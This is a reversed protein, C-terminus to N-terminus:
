EKEELEPIHVMKRGEFYELEEYREVKRLRKILDVLRRMNRKLLQTDEETLSSLAGKGIAAECIGIVNNFEHNLSVVTARFAQLQREQERRSVIRGLQEGLLYKWVLLLIVPGTVFLSQIHHYYFGLGITALSTSALNLRNANKSLVLACDVSAVLMLISSILHEYKYQDPFLFYHVVITLQMCFVFAWHSLEESVEKKELVLGVSSSFIPLLFFAVFEVLSGGTSFLLAVGMLFYLLSGLLLLRSIPNKM